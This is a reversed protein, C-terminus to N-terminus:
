TSKVGATARSITILPEMPMRAISLSWSGASKMTARGSAERFWNKAVVQARVPGSVVMAADVLVMAQALAITSHIHIPIPVAIAAAPSALIAVTVTHLM